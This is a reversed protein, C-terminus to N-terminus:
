RKNQGWLLGIININIEMKHGFSSLSLAIFWLKYAISRLDSVTDLKLPWTRLSKVTSSGLLLPFDGELIFFLWIPPYLLSSGRPINPNQLSDKYSSHLICAPYAPDQPGASVPALTHPSQLRPLDANIRIFPWQTTKSLYVQSSRSHVQALYQGCPLSDLVTAIGTTLLAPSVSATHNFVTCVKALAVAFPAWLKLVKPCKPISTVQSFPLSLSSLVIVRSSRRSSQLPLLSWPLPYYHLLFLHLHLKCYKTKNKILTPIRIVNVSM